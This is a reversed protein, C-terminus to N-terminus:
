DLFFLNDVLNQIQGYSIVLNNYSKLLSEIAVSIPLDQLMRRSRIDKATFEKFTSLESM